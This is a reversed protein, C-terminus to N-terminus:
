RGRQARTRGCGLAGVDAAPIHVVQGVGDAVARPCQRGQEGRGPDAGPWRQAPVQLTQAVRRSFGATRSRGGGLCRRCSPGAPRPHSVAARRVSHASLAHVARFPADPSACLRLAHPHMPPAAQSRRRPWARVTLHSRPDSAQRRGGFSTSHTTFISRLHALKSHSACQTWTSWDSAFTADPVLNSPHGRAASTASVKAGVRCPPKALSTRRKAVARRAPWFKRPTVVVSAASPLTPRVGTAPVVRVTRRGSWERRIRTRHMGCARYM